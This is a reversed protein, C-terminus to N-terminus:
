HEYKLPPAYFNPTQQHSGFGYNGPTSYGAPSYPYAGTQGSPYTASPGMMSSSFLDNYHLPMNVGNMMAYNHNAFMATVSPENLAVNGTISTTDPSRGLSSNSLSTPSTSSESCTREFAQPLSTDLSTPLQYTPQNVRSLFPNWLMNPYSSEQTQRVNSLGNTQQTRPLYVNESQPVPLGSQQVVVNPAIAGKGKRKGGDKNRYRRRLFSGHDFMDEFSPDIAWEHGKMGIKRPLKVFCDNLALNHRISGKWGKMNSHNRYFPYRDTIFKYIDHLTLKREPANAIAMSILAIYSYPPKGKPIPRKRKRSGSAEVPSEDEVPDDSPPTSPKGISDDDDDNIPISLAEDLLISRDRDGGYEQSNAPRYVNLSNASYFNHIDLSNPYYSLRNDCSRGYM